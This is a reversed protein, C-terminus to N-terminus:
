GHAAVQRVEGPSLMADLYSEVDLLMARRDACETAALMANRRAVHQSSVAWERVLRAPRLRPLTSSLRLFNQM